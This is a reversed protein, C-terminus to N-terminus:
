FAKGLSAGANAFVVDIRGRRDAAQGFAANLAGRDTVDVIAGRVAFGYGSLRAVEGALREGDIDMLTVEAGNAALAEACALGIGSGAGTVVTVLGEVGFLTEIREVRFGRVM